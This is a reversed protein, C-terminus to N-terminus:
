VRRGPPTSRPPTTDSAAGGEGRLFCAIMQSKAGHPFDLVSCMCAAEVSWSRAFWEATSRERFGGVIGKQAAVRYRFKAANGNSGDVAM